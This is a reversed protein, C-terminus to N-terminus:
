GAIMLSVSAVIEKLVNKRHASEKRKMFEKLYKDFEKSNPTNKLHEPM